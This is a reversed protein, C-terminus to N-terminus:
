VEPWEDPFGAKHRAEYTERDIKNHEMDLIKLRQADRDQHHTFTAEACFVLAHAENARFTWENDGYEVYYWPLGMRGNMVTDVYERTCMWLTALTGYHWPDHFAVFGKNPTDLCARLWGDDFEMDDSMLAIWEGTSVQYGAEWKEQPHGNRYDEPMLVVRVDLLDMMAERSIIDPADLIVIIETNIGATTARINALSRKLGGIRDRSPILITVLPDSV